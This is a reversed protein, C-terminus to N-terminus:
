MLAFTGIAFNGPRDFATVVVSSASNTGPAPAPIHYLWREVVQQAEGASIVSGTADRIAVHVRVVKFDDYAWIAIDGGAAPTFDLTRFFAIKPPNAHDRIAAQWYNLPKKKRKAGATAYAERLAADARVTAAYDAHNKFHDRHCRQPRSWPKRRVLPAQAVMGGKHRRFIVDGIRGRALGIASNLIVRAM